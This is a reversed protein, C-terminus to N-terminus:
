LKSLQHHLCKKTGKENWTHTQSQSCSRRLLSSLCTGIINASAGVRGNKNRLLSPTGEGHSKSGRARKINAKLLISGGAEGLATVALDDHPCFPELTWVLACRCQFGPGHSRTGFAALVRSRAYGMRKHKAMLSAHARLAQNKLLVANSYMTRESEKKACVEGM